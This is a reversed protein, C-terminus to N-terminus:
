DVTVKENRHDYNLFIVEIVPLRPWFIAVLVVPIRRFIPRPHRPPWTSGPGTAPYACVPRYHLINYSVLSNSYLKKLIIEYYRYM